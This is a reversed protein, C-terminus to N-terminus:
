LFIFKNRIIYYQDSTLNGFLVDVENCATAVTFREQCLSVILFTEPSDVRGISYLHRPDGPIM